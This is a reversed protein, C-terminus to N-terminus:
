SYPRAYLDAALGFRVVDSIREDDRDWTCVFICRDKGWEYEVNILADSSPNIMERSLFILEIRCTSLFHCFYGQWIVRLAFLFEANQGSRCKSGAENIHDMDQVAIFCLDRFAQFGQGHAHLCLNISAIPELLFRASNTDIGGKAVLDFAQEAGLIETWMDCQNGHTHNGGHYGVVNSQASFPTGWLQRILLANDARPSM